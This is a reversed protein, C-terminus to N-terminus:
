SAVRDGLSRRCLFNEMGQSEGVYGCVLLSLFYYFRFSSEAGQDFRCLLGIFVAEMLSIFLPFQNPFVRGQVSWWTDVLAYAAGVGLIANLAARHLPASESLGSPSLLNVLVYGVALGFWRIRVTITEAPLQWNVDERPSM